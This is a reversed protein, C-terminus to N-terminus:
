SVANIKEKEETKAETVYVKKYYLHGLPLKSLYRDSIAKVILFTVLLSVPKDLLETIFSSILTAPILGIGVSQMAIIIASQGTETIGGFLMATIPAALVVGVAAVVVGTLIATGIKTMWKKKALYGVILGYAIVVPTYAIFTPSTISSILSGITATIAGVIPGCLAATLFTGISDLYVPLKLVRALQGGIYNIAVGIPILAITMTGMKKLFNNGM